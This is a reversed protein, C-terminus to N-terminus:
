SRGDEPYTQVYGLELADAITRRMKQESVSRVDCVRRDIMEENVESYRYLVDTWESIDDTSPSRRYALINTNPVGDANEGVARYEAVLVECASGDCSRDCVCHLAGPGCDGDPECDDCLVDRGHTYVSDGCCSCVNM